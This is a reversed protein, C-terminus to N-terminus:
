PLDDLGLTGAPSKQFLELLNQIGLHTGDLDADRECFVTQLAVKTIRGHRPQQQEASKLIVLERIAKVAIEDGFIVLMQHFPNLLSDLFPYKARHIRQKGGATKQRHDKIMEENLLQKAGLAHLSKVRVPQAAVNSLYPQSTHQTGALLSRLERIEFLDKGSIGSLIM